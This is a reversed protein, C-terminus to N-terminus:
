IRIDIKSVLEKNTNTNKEGNAKKNEKRSHEDKKNDDNKKSKQKKGDKDVRSEHLRDSKNVQKLSQNYKEADKQINIQANIKENEIEAHKIRQVEPTKPIMTQFDVSRISM